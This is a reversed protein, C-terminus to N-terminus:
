DFRPLMDMIPHHERALQKGEFGAVQSVGLGASTLFIEDARRVEDIGVKVEECDLNELTYERTTGALCGSELSPTFLKGSKLWFINAMCASAIEGRENLQVAEAFGLKRAEIISLVKELYNCSKVGALPSQSNIRFGSLGISLNQIKPRNDGTIILLSTTRESEYPWPEGAEEFFFTIRARGNEFGNATIVEELAARTRDEAFSSLDIWARKSNEVLRRWHKEWLFPKRDVIAITTFVGRGVLSASSLAPIYTDSPNLLRGNFSVVAHAKPNSM